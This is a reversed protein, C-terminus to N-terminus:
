APAHESLWERLAASLREEWGEGTSQFVRAVEADIPVPVRAASPASSQLLEAVIEADFLEPVVDAAPRARRFWEAGLEPSEDDLLEPDPKRTM